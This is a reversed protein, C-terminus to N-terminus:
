TGLEVVSGVAVLDTRYGLLPGLGSVVTRGTAVIQGGYVVEVLLLHEQFFEIYGAKRKPNSQVISARAVFAVECPYIPFGGGESGPSIPLGIVTAVFVTDLHVPTSLAGIIPVVGSAVKVAV